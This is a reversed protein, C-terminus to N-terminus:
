MDVAGLIWAHSFSIEDIIVALPEGLNGTVVHLKDSSLPQILNPDIGLKFCSQTTRASQRTPIATCAVGTLATAAIRRGVANALTELCRFLFSKGTGGAGDLFLFPPTTPQGAYVADFHDAMIRLARTQGPNPARTPLAVLADLVSNAPRPAHAATVGGPARVIQPPPIPLLDAAEDAKLRATVAAVDDQDVIYEGVRPYATNAATVAATGSARVLSHALTLRALYANLRAQAASGTLLPDANHVAQLADINFENIEEETARAGPNGRTM